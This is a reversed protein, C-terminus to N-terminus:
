EVTSCNALIVQERCWENLNKAADDKEQKALCYSLWEFAFTTHPNDTGLNRTRWVLTRRLLEESREWFDQTQDNQTGAEAMKLLYIAAHFQFDWYIPHEIGWTQAARPIVMEFMIGECSQWDQNKSHALAQWARWSISQPANRGFVNECLAFETDLIRLGEGLGATGALLWAYVFRITITIPANRGSERVSSEYLALARAPGGSTEPDKRKSKEFAAHDLMLDIFGIIIGQKRPELTGLRRKSAEYIRLKMTTHGFSEVHLCVTRLHTLSHRYNALALERFRDGFADLAEQCEKENGQTFHICARSAIEQLDCYALQKIDQQVHTMTALQAAFSQRSSSQDSPDKTQDVQPTISMITNYFEKDTLTVQTDIAPYGYFEPEVDEQAPLAEFSDTEMQFDSGSSNWQSFDDVNDVSLFQTQTTTALNDYCSHGAPM